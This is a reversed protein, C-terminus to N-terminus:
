SFYVCIKELALNILLAFPPFAKVSVATLGMESTRVLVLLSLM